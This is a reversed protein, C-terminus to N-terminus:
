KCSTEHVGTTNLLEIWRFIGRRVLDIELRSCTLTDLQLSKAKLKIVTRCKSTARSAVTISLTTVIGHSISCIVLANKCHDPFLSTSLSPGLKAISGIAKHLHIIMLDLKGSLCIFDIYNKSQTHDSVIVVAVKAHRLSHTSAASNM